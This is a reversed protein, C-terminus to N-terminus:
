PLVLFRLDDSNLDLLAVTRTSVRHLAGPNIVRMSGERYDDRQHTHGHLLYDYRADRLADRFAQEHGHYVGIRKGDLSLELPGEPWPLGLAQVYPRWSPRPEDTNGWVFWCRRGAFEDLVELGGVDGCHIVAEAGATDLALLAQRILPTRGHSDSLIGLKM